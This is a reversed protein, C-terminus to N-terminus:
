SSIVRCANILLLTQMMKKRVKPGLLIYLWTVALLEDVVRLVVSALWLSPPTMIVMCNRQLSIAQIMIRSIPSRSVNLVILIGMANKNSLCTPTYGCSRKSITNFRTYQLYNLQIDGPKKHRWTAVGSKVAKGRLRYEKLKDSMDQKLSQPDLKRM